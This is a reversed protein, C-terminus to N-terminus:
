VGWLDVYNYQLMVSGLSSLVSYEKAGISNQLLRNIVNGQVLIM